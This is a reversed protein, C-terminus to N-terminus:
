YQSFPLLPYSRGIGRGDSRDAGPPSLVQLWYCLQDWSLCLFSSAAFDNIDLCPKSDSRSLSRASTGISPVAARQIVSVRSLRPRIVTAPTRSNMTRATIAQFRAGYNSAASTQDTPQGRASRVGVPDLLDNTNRLPTAHIPHVTDEVVDQVEVSFPSFIV